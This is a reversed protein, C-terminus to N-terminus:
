LLLHVCLQLLKESFPNRKWFNELLGLVSIDANKDTYLDRDCKRNEKWAM